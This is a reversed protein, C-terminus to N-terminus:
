IINDLVYQHGNLLDNAVINYGDYDNYLRNDLEKDTIISTNSDDIWKDKYKVFTNVRDLSSPNYVDLKFIPIGYKGNPM